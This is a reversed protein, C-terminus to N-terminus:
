NWTEPFVHTRTGEAIVTQMANQEMKNFSNGESDCLKKEGSRAGHRIYAKYARGMKTPFAGENGDEDAKEYDVLRDKYIRQDSQYLFFMTAFEETLDDVSKTADQDTNEITPKFVGEGGALILSDM